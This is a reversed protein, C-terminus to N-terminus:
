IKRVTQAPIWGINGDSLRVEYWGGVEEEIRVKSGEHIVFLDNGSDDPSSKGTVVPSFVIAKKNKETLNRNEISLVFSCLSIFIALVSLLFSLKKYRYKYSFLYILFLCLCFIFTLLSIMAWEASNMALSSMQFWRVFFLDPISEFNDVLYTRAIELNYRTDEDFPKGLLTKEYYLISAPINGLKFYANGLNYFLEASNYGSDALKEWEMAANEFDGSSYLEIGKTYISDIDQALCGNLSSILLSFSYIYIIVGPKM